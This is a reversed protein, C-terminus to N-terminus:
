CIDELIPFLDDPVWEGQRQKLETYVEVIKEYLEAAEQWMGTHSQRYNVATDIIRDPNDSRLAEFIEDAYENWVRYYAPSPPTVDLWEQLRPDNEIYSEVDVRYTEDTERVPFDNPNNLLAERSNEVHATLEDQADFYRTLSQDLGEYGQELLEDIQDALQAQLNAATEQSPNANFEATRLQVGDAVDPIDTVSGPQFVDPNLVMGDATIDYDNGLTALIEDKVVAFSEPDLSQELEALQQRLTVSEAEPLVLLSDNRYEVLRPVGSLQESATSVGRAIDQAVQQSQALVSGRGFNDARTGFYFVPNLPDVRTRSVQPTVSIDLELATRAAQLENLSTLATELETTANIQEQLRYRYVQDTSAGRQYSPLSITIEDFATNYRIVDPTTLEVLLRQAAPFDYVELEQFIQYFRPYDRSVMDFTLDPNKVLASRVYAPLDSYATNFFEEISSRLLVYKNLEEIRRTTFSDDLNRARDAIASENIANVIDYLQNLRLQSYQSVPRDLTNAIRQIYYNKRWRQRDARLRPNLIEAATEQVGRINVNDFRAYGFEWNADWGYRELVRGIRNRSVPPVSERNLILSVGDSRSDAIFQKFWSVIDNLRRTVPKVTFSETGYFTSRELGVVEYNMRDRIEQTLEIIPRLREPVSLQEALRLDTDNFSIDDLDEALRAARAAVSNTEISLRGSLSDTYQQPTYGPMRSAAERSNYDLLIERMLSPDELVEDLLQEFTVPRRYESEFEAYQRITNLDFDNLDELTYSRSQIGQLSDVWNQLQQSGTLEEQRFASDIAEDLGRDGILGIEITEPNDIYDDLAGTGEPRGIRDAEDFLEELSMDELRSTGPNELIDLTTDGVQMTLGDDLSITPVDPVTLRPPTPPVLIDVSDPVSPPVIGSPSFGVPDGNRAPPLLGAPSQGPLRNQVIEADIIGGEPLRRNSYPLPAGAPPTPRYRTGVFEGEVLPVEPLRRQRPYVRPNVGSPNWSFPLKIAPALASSAGSQMSKKTANKIIGTTFAATTISETMADLGLGIVAKYYNNPDLEAQKVRDALWDRFKPLKINGGSLPGLVSQVPVGIVSTISDLLVNDRVAKSTPTDKLDPARKYTGFEPLLGFPNFDGKENVREDSFSFQRGFIAQQFATGPAGTDTDIIQQEYGRIYEGFLRKGFDSITSARGLEREFSDRARGIGAVIGSGIRGLDTALGLTTNLPLGLGYLIGSVGGAQGVGQRYYREYVDRMGTLNAIAELFPNRDYVGPQPANFPQMLQSAMQGTRLAELLAETNNANPMTPEPIDTGQWINSDLEFEINEFPIRMSRDVQPIQMSPLNSQVPQQVSPVAVGLNEPTYGVSEVPGPFQEATQPAPINEPLSVSDDELVAEDVSVEPEAQEETDIVQPTPMLSPDPQWGPRNSEEYQRIISM